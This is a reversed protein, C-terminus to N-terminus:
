PHLLCFAKPSVLIAAFFITVMYTQPISLIERTNLDYHFKTSDIETQSKNEPIRDNIQRSSQYIPAGISIDMHMAENM